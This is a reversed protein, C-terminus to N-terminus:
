SAETETADRSWAAFTARADMAADRVTHGAGIIDWTGNEDTMTVAVEFETQGGFLDDLDAGTNIRIM